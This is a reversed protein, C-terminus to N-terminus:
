PLALPPKPTVKPDWKGNLEVHNSSYRGDFFCIRQANLTSARFQGVAPWTQDVSYQWCTLGRYRVAKAPRGDVRLVQAYTMGYALKGTKPGDAYLREAPVTPPPVTFGPKAHSGGVRAVGPGSRGGCGAVLLASSAVVALLTAPIWAAPSRTM